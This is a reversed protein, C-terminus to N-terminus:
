RKSRTNVNWKVGGFSNNILNMWLSGFGTRRQEGISNINNKFHKGLLKAFYFEFYM